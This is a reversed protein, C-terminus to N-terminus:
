LHAGSIGLRGKNKLPTSDRNIQSSLLVNHIRHVDTTKFFIIFLYLSLSITLSEPYPFSEDPNLDAVGQM